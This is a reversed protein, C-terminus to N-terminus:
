TKFYFSVDSLPVSRCAVWDHTPRFSLPAKDRRFTLIAEKGLWSGWGRTWCRGLLMVMEVNMCVAARWVSCLLSYETRPLFAELSACFFFFFFLWMFSPVMNWATTLFHCQVIRPNCKRSAKQTKAGASYVGPAAAESRVLNNVCDDVFVHFM